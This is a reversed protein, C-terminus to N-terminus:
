PHSGCSAHEARLEPDFDFYLPNQLCFIFFSLYKAFRVIIVFDRTLMELSYYDYMVECEFTSRSNSNRNQFDSQSYFFILKLSSLYTKM